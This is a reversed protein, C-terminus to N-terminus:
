LASGLPVVSEVRANMLARLAAGPGFMTHTGGPVYEIPLGGEEDGVAM